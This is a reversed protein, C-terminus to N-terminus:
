LYVSTNIVIFHKNNHIQHMGLDLFLYLFIHNDNNFRTSDFCFDPEYQHKCFIYNLHLRFFLTFNFYHSSHNFSSSSSASLRWLRGQLPGTDRRKIHMPEQWESESDHTDTRLLPRHRRRRVAEPASGVDGRWRLASRNTCSYTILPPRLSFETGNVVIM